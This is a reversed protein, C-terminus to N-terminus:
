SSSPLGFGFNSGKTRRIGPGGSQRAHRPSLCAWLLATPTFGAVRFETSRKPPPDLEKAPVARSEFYRHTDADARTPAVESRASRAAAGERGGKRAPFAGRSSASGTLVAPGDPGSSLESRECRQRRLRIVTGPRQCLSGRRCPHSSASEWRCIARVFLGPTLIRRTTLSVASAPATGTWPRGPQRPFQRTRLLPLHRDDALVSLSRFPRSRCNKM